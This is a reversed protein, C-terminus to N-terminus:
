WRSPSGGAPAQARRPTATVDRARLVIRGFGEAGEARERVSAREAALGVLVPDGLV